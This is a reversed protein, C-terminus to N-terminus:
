GHAIRGGRAKIVTGTNPVEVEADRAHLMKQVHALVLGASGPQANVKLVLQALDALVEHGHPALFVARYQETKTM